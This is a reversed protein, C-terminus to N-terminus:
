SQEHVLSILLRHPGNVLSSRRDLAVESELHKGHRVCAQTPRFVCALRKFRVHFPQRGRVQSSGADNVAMMSTLAIEVVADIRKAVSSHRLPGIPKVPPRRILEITAAPLHSLNALTQNRVRGGERFSRRLLHTEYVRGKYHRRTTVVHM